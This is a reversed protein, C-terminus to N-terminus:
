GNESVPTLRNLVLHHVLAAIVVGGVVFWGLLRNNNGPTFCSVPGCNVVVIILAPILTALVVTRKRWRVRGHLVARVLLWVAALILIFAPVFIVMPGAVWGDLPPGSRLNVIWLASVAVIAVFTAILAFVHARAPRKV